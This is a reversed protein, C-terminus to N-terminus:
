RWSPSQPESGRQSPQPHAQRAPVPGNAPAGADPLSRLLRLSESIAKRSQEISERIDGLDRRISLQARRM